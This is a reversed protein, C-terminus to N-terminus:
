AVPPPAIQELMSALRERFETESALLADFTARMQDAEAIANDRQTTMDALQARLTEAENETPESPSLLKDLAASIRAGAADFRESIDSM